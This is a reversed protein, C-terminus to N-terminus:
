SPFACSSSSSEQRSQRAFAPLLEPLSADLAEPSVHRRKNM